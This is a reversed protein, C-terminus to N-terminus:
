DFSLGVQDAGLRSPRGIWEPDSFLRREELECSEQRAEEAVLREVFLASQEALEELATLLRSRLGEGRALADGLENEFPVGITSM